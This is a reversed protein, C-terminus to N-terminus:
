FRTPRRCHTSVLRGSGYWQFRKSFEIVLAVTMPAQGLSFQKITQPVNDELVRFWERPITPVFNNKNDVVAVDVTVLSTDASFTAAPPGGDDKNKPDAEVPDKASGRIQLTAVARATATLRLRPPRPIRAPRRPRAVTDSGVSGPGEQALLCM